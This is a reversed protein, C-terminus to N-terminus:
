ISKEPNRRLPSRRASPLGATTSIHPNHPSFLSPTIGAQKFMSDSQTKLFRKHASTGSNFCTLTTLKWDRFDFRDSGAIGDRHAQRAERRSGRSRQDANSAFGIALYAAALSRAGRYVMAHNDNM